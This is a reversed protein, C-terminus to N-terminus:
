SRRGQARITAEENDQNVVRCEGGAVKIRFCVIGATNQNLRSVRLRYPEAGITRVVDIRQRGLQEAFRNQLDAIFRRAASESNAAGIEAAFVPRSNNVPPQRDETNEGAAGLAAIAGIATPPNSPKSAVVPQRDSPLGARPPVTRGAAAQPAPPSRVVISKRAARVDLTDPPLKEDCKDGRSTLSRIVDYAALEILWRVATQVPENQKQGINATFLELSGATILAAARLVPNAQVFRFVGATMEYGVLQKKYSRAHVIETTITNTVLVDVAISIRYTRRGATASHAGAEALSSSINWNLETIAGSVYHTSGLFAGVRVPRFEVKQNESDVARGEGLKKEMANKLEWEAVAISNRNVLHVGGRALAVTMMMDPRQTLARSNQADGEMTGTGDVFEAVGLRLDPKKVYDSLCELLEHMPTTNVRPAPGDVPAVDAKMQTPHM